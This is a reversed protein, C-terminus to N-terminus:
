PNWVISVVVLNWCESGFALCLGMSEALEVQECVLDRHSTSRREMPHPAEAKHGHVLWTVMMALGSCARDIVAVDVRENM